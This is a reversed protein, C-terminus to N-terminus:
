KLQKNKKIRRRLFNLTKKDSSKIKSEIIEINTGVELRVSNSYEVDNDVDNDADGFEIDDCQHCTCYSFIMYLKNM